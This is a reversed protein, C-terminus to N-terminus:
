LNLSAQKPPTSPPTCVPTSLSPNFFIKTGFKARNGPNGRVGGVVACRSAHLDNLVLTPITFLGALPVM